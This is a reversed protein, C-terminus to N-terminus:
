AMLARHSSVYQQALWGLPLQVKGDHGCVANNMGM